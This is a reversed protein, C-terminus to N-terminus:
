GGATLKREFFEYNLRWKYDHSQQALFTPLWDAANAARQSQSKALFNSFDGIRVLIPFRRDKPDLFPPAGAFRTGRLNRCLEFAVRRLFTSKGAGPEGILVLRRGSITRELNTRGHGSATTLPIYIEDIGFFYPEARKSKLGRIRIQRTDDELYQLYVADDAAGPQLKQKRFIDIIAARFGGTDAFPKAGTLSAQFQKLSEINRKVTAIFERPDDLELAKELDHKEKFQDPWAHTPDMVFAHIPKNLSRAHEYELRVVGGYRHASLLIVFSADAVASLKASKGDSFVAEFGFSRAASKVQDRYQVLDDVTSCVFVLSKPRLRQQVAEVIAAVSPQQPTQDEGFGFPIEVGTDIRIPLYTNRAKARNAEEKVPDSTVASHSWCVLVCSASELKLLIEPRWQDGIGLKVDWWVEIGAAELAQRYLDVRPRDETKYSLFVHSM